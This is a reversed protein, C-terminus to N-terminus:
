KSVILEQGVKLENTDLNNWEKLQKVTVKYKRAIAYLGEKALVLHKKTNEKETVKDVSDSGPQLFLKIGAGVEEDGSLNNYVKLYKLQIGNKQAVDYLTEGAQVIYFEKDGIKSKKHLFVYQDKDLIGEETFDNFEMLKNLSINNKIAIALLSTGKKVFVCKTKNISTIKEEIAVDSSKDDSKIEVPLEKEKGGEYKPIEGLGALTYQQLNYQEINKILIQPYRPNTAYGARKIGYAWGKYDTPDLKFLFSYRSSGKLYNSHDRYSDEANDYARFCEGRADDDHYVRGGTWSDKCKIGFHNNSRKVLDSNGNETELIGQALIIAAPVGMRKMERIAIDKYQEIYEEVSIKQAGACLSISFFLISILLRNM